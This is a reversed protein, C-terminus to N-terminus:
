DCVLILTYRAKMFLVAAVLAIVIGLIIIAIAVGTIVYVVSDSGSDINANSNTHISVSGVRNTASTEDVSPSVDSISTVGDESIDTSISTTSGVRNRADSSNTCTTDLSHNVM